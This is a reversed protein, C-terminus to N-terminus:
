ERIGVWPESGTTMVSAPPVGPAFKKTVACPLPLAAPEDPEVDPVNSAAPLATAWSSLM